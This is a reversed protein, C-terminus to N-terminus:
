VVVGFEKLKIRALKREVEVARGSAEKLEDFSVPRLKFGNGERVVEFIKELKAGDFMYFADKPKVNEGRCALCFVRRGCKSECEGLEDSRDKGGSCRNSPFDLVIFHLYHESVPKTILCTYELHTALKKRVRIRVADVVYDYDLECRPISNFDREFAELFKDTLTEVAPYVYESFDEVFKSVVDLEFERVLVGNLYSLFKRKHPYFFLSVNFFYDGALMSELLKISASNESSIGSDNLLILLVTLAGWRVGDEEVFIDIKWEAGEDNMKLDSVIDTKTIRLIREITHKSSAIKMLPEFAFVGPFDRYAFKRAIEICEASHYSYAQRSVRRVRRLVEEYAGQSFMKSNRYHKMLGSLKEPTTSLSIVLENLMSSVDDAIECKRDMVYHNLYFILYVLECFLRDEGILFARDFNIRRVKEVLKEWDAKLEEFFKRGKEPDNKGRFDFKLGFSSDLLGSWVSLFNSFIDSLEIFTRESREKYKGEKGYELVYGVNGSASREVGEKLFKRLTITSTRTGKLLSM